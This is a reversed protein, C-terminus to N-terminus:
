NLGSELWEALVWGSATRQLTWQSWNPQAKQWGAVGGPGDPNVLLELHGEAQVVASDATIAVGHWVDVVFKAKSYGIVKPDASNKELRAAAETLAAIRDTAGPAWIQPIADRAKAARGASDPLNRQQQAPQSLIDYSATVLRELAIKVQAIEGPTGRDAISDAPRHAARAEEAIQSAPIVPGTPVAPKTSAGPEKPPGNSPSTTPPGTPVVTASAAPAAGTVVRESKACSALAMTLSFGAASALRLLLHANDTRRIM